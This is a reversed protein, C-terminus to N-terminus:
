KLDTPHFNVDFMTGTGRIVQRIWLQSLGRDVRRDEFKGDLDVRTDLRPEPGDEVLALPKLGPESEQATGIRHRERRVAGSAVIRSPCQGASPNEGGPM